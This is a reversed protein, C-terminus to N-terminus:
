FRNELIRFASQGCTQDCEAEGPICVYGDHNGSNDLHEGRIQDIGELNSVLILEWNGARPCGGDANAQPIMPAVMSTGMISAVFVFVSISLTKNM